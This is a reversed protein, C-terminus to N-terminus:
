IRSQTEEVELCKECICFHKQNQDCTYDDVGVLNSNPRKRAVCQEDREDKKEGPQTQRPGAKRFIEQIRVRPCQSYIDYFEKADKRIAKNENTLVGGILPAAKRRWGGWYGAIPEKGPGDPLDLWLGLAKVQANSNPRAIFANQDLCYLLCEGFWVPGEEIPKVKYCYGENAGVVSTFNDPCFTDEELPCNAEDVNSDQCDIEGDCLNSKPLCPNDAEGPCSLLNDACLPVASTTTPPPGGGIAIKVLFAFILGVLPVLKFNEM